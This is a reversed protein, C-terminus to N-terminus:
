KQAEKTYASEQCYLIYKLYIHFYKLIKRSNTLFIKAKVPTNKGQDECESQCCNKEIVKKGEQIFTIQIIIM